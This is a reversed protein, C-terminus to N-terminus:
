SAELVFRVSEGRLMEFPNICRVGMAACADPIKIRKKSGPSSVEYTVVTCDHAMAYAVLQYDGSDLFESVAHDKYDVADSGAWTALQALCPGTSVDMELFMLGNRVAWDTIDDKGRDLEEKVKKISRLVGAGNGHELWQWFAPVFDMGYHNRHSQIFINADLLYM